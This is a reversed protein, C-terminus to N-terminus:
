FVIEDDIRVRIGDDYVLSLVVPTDPFIMRTHAIVAFHSLSKLNEPLSPAVWHFFLEETTLKAIPESAVVADWDKPPLMPGAPPWTLFNITWVAPIRPSEPSEAGTSIDRQPSDIREYGPWAPLLDSGPGVNSFVGSYRREGDAANHVHITSQSGFNEEKLKTQVQSLQEDSANAVCRREEGPAVPEEWLTLWGAHQGSGPVLAVDALLLGERIANEDPHPLDRQKQGAKVCFKGGDRVWVASMRPIGPDSGVVPRLRTPRYGSGRLTEVLSLLEPLPMDLCFAYSDALVGHAVEIQAKVTAGPTTWTPHQPPDSWAPSLQRDLIAAFQKIAEGRHPHLLPFLVKDAAPDAGVILDTLIQVDDKAYDALLGTIITRSVESQKPDAFLKALPWKLRAAQPRLVEQYAGILLPNTAALQEATFVTTEPNSWVMDEGEGEGPEWAALLCASHLRLIAPQRDDQLVARLKPGLQKAWPQLLKTLPLLQEPRCELSRNQITPLLDADDDGLQLRAIALHLRAESDQASEAYLNQLPSLAYERLQQLPVLGAALDSTKQTPIVSALDNARGIEAQRRIWSNLFVAALVLLLAISGRIGHGWGAARMMERQQATWRSRDTRLHIRTWEGLSPLQRSERKESWRDTRDELTREEATQNLRLWERISPVLYDHTLQYSPSHSTSFLSHAPPLDPHPSPPPSDAANDETEAVTPTILRLESDLIRLLEQFDHGRNEYGSETRLESASKMSGKIDATVKPLLAKLLNRVAQQHQRYRADRTFTEELFVVGVGALGGM